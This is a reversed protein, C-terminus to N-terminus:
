RRKERKVCAPCIWRQKQYVWGNAEAGKKMQAMSYRVDGMINGSLITVPRGNPGHSFCTPEGYRNVGDIQADCRIELWISM